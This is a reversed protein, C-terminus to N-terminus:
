IAHIIMIILKYIVYGILSYFLIGAITLAMLIHALNDMEQKKNM